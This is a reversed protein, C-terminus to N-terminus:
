LEEIESLMITVWFMASPVISQFSKIMKQITDFMIGSM